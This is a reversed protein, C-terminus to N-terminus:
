DNTWEKYKQPYQMDTIKDHLYQQSLNLRRARPNDPLAKAAYKLTDPYIGGYLEKGTYQTLNPINNLAEFAAAQAVAEATLIANQITKAKVLTKKAVVTGPKLIQKLEEEEDTQIPIYRTGLSRKVYEDDLPDTYSAETTPPIYGPCKPDSIPESKCTDYTFGYRVNQNTVAGKGETVIEGRGWAKLPVSDLAFSKTITNGGLGSWDDRSRFTYGGSPNINQVTVVFPDERQKVATYTYSVSNVTLGTYQPLIETMAWTLGGAAANPTQANIVECYSYSYYLLCGLVM